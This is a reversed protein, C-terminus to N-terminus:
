DKNDRIMEEYKKMELTARLQEQAAQIREKATQHEVM